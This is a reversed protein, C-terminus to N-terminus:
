YDPIASFNFWARLLQGHDNALAYAHFTGAGPSGFRLDTLEIRNGRGARLEVPEETWVPFRAFYVFFRFPEQKRAALVEPTQPIKYFTMPGGSALDGGPKPPYRYTARPSEVVGTWSLPNVADPLAGTLLPPANDYLRAELQQIALHHFYARACVFLLFFVLAFRAIGKGTSARGGIEGSVLRSFWPWICALLLVSWIVVDYLHILDLHSWRSSFPLFLRIGYDNSLDLLLHSAIGICCLAFARLWPLRTRLMAAVMLVVAAALLPLSILAHSYGRHAELYYLEGRAIAIFDLDPVNASLVLLVTAHLSFRNLGARSLALGVLSHTLNDM